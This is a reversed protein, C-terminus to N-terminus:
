IHILSLHLLHRAHFATAYTLFGESEALDIAEFLMDEPVIEGKSAYLNAANEFSELARRHEGQGIYAQAIASHTAADDPFQKSIKDYQRLADLFQETKLFYEAIGRHSEISDGSIQKALDFQSRGKEFKEQAYNIQGALLFPEPNANGILDKADDIDSLADDYQGM